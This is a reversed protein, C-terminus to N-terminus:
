MKGVQETHVIYTHQRFNSLNTDNTSVVLSYAHVAWATNSTQLGTTLAELVILLHHPSPAGVAWSSFPGRYDLM